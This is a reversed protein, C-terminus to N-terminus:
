ATAVQYRTHHLQGTATDIIFLDWHNNAAMAGPLSIQSLDPMTAGAPLPAYSPQTISPSLRVADHSGSGSVLVGLGEATAMHAPDALPSTGAAPTYTIAQPCVVAPTPPPASTDVYRRLWQIQHNGSDIVNVSEANPEVQAPSDAELQGPHHFRIQPAQRCRLDQGSDGSNGPQDSGAFAKITGDLTVERIRNNGTDAIFIDGDQAVSVGEPHNLEARTAPGGDGSSGPTGTGAIVRLHGHSDIMDIRNNGTDAVLVQGHTDLALQHPQSVKGAAIQTIHGHSDVKLLRDASAVSIWVDGHGDAVMGAVDGFPGVTRDWHVLSEPAADTTSSCGATVVAGSAILVVGVFRMRVRGM